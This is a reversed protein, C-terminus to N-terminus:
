NTELVYENTMDNWDTSEIHTLCHVLYTAPGGYEDYRVGQLCLHDAANLFFSSPDEAVEPVNPTNETFLPDMTIWVDGDPNYVHLSNGNSLTAMRNQWVISSATDFHIFYPPKRCDNWEGGM